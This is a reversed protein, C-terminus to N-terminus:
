TCYSVAHDYFLSWASTFCFLAWPFSNFCHSSNVQIQTAGLDAFSEESSGESSINLSEDHKREPMKQPIPSVNLSLPEYEIPQPVKGRPVAVQDEDKDMRPRAYTTLHDTFPFLDYCFGAFISRDNFIM